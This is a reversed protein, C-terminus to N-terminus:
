LLEFYEPLIWGLNGTSSLVLADLTDGIRNHDVVCLVLLVDRTTIPVEPFGCQDPRMHLDGRVVCICGPRILEFVKHVRM